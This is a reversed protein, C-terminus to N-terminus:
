DKNHGVPILSVYIGHFRNMLLLVALLNDKKKRIHLLLLFCFNIEYELFCSCFILLNKSSTM